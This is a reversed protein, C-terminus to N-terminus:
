SSALLSLPTFHLFTIFKHLHQQSSYSLCLLIEVFGDLFWNRMSYLLWILTGTCFLSQTFPTCHAFVHNTRWGLALLLMFCSGVVSCYAMNKSSTAKTNSRGFLLSLVGGSFGLLTIFMCGILAIVCGNKSVVSGILICVFVVTFIGVALMGVYSIIILRVIEEITKGFREGLTQM